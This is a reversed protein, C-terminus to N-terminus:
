NDFWFVLRASGDGYKDRLGQCMTLLGEAIRDRYSVEVEFPAAYTIGEEQAEESSALRAMRDQSVHVVGAGSIGGCWSPPLKEGSEKWQKFEPLTVFGAVTTHQGDLDYDLVEEVLLWSHSHGDCGWQESESKVEDSANDPIGRPESIPVFGGGTRVGAFGYGNRVNALMAFTDYSRWDWLPILAGDAELSEGWEWEFRARRNDGSPEPDGRKQPTSTSLRRWEGSELVEVNMHIDCGM